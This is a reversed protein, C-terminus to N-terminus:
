PASSGRAARDASTRMLAHGAAPGRVAMPTMGTIRRNLASDRVVTWEGQPGRAIEVVAFGHAAVEVECMERTREAKGDWAAWMLEPRANEHNVGLLGRTSGSGGAPLPVFGIFDNDYGFQREQRAATQAAPDLEAAGPFLPDGWRILVSHKYGPPLLLKDENSARVPAFASAGQAEVPRRSALHGTAAAAMGIGARALFGRRSLRATLVSQFTPNSSPNVPTEDDVPERDLAM